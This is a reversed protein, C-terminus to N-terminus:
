RNSTAQKLHVADGAVGAVGHVDNRDVPLLVSSRFLM